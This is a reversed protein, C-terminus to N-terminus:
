ITVAMLDGDMDGNDKIAVQFQLMQLKWWGAGWSIGTVMGM